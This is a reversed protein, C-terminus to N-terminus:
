EAEVVRYFGKTGTMPFDLITEPATPILLWGLSTWAPTTLDAKFQVAYGRGVEGTFSMRLYGARRVGGCAVGVPFPKAGALIAYDACGDQDVDVSAPYAEDFPFWVPGIGVVASLSRPSRPLRALANTVDSGPLLLLRGTVPPPVNWWSGNIGSAPLAFWVKGQGALLERLLTENLPISGTYFTVARLGLCIDVPPDSFPVEVPDCMPVFRTLGEGM